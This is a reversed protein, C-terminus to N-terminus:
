RTGTMGSMASASPLSGKKNTRTVLVTNLAYRIVVNEHVIDLVPDTIREGTLKNVLILVHRLSKMLTDKETIDLLRCAYRNLFLIRAKTDKIIVSEPAAMIKKMYWLASKDFYRKGMSYNYRAIEINSIIDNANFPKLIFGYPEVVRVRGIVDDDASIM